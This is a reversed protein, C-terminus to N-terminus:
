NKGFYIVSRPQEIKSAMDCYKGEKDFYQEMYLVLFIMLPTFSIYMFLGNTVALITFIAFAIIGFRAKTSYVILMLWYLITGPIGYGILVNLFDNHAHIGEGGYVSQMVMRIGNIGIGLFRQINDEFYLYYGLLVAAFKERGNSITGSEAANMTKQMLPNNSLIDTFTMLFVIGVAMVFIIITKKTKNKISLFDMIVLVLLGLLASRVGTWVVSIFILAMMYVPFKKNSIKFQISSLAYLAVLMYALSHPIEFQGYLLPVTVGWGETRLGHKFLVGFLLLIYFGIVTIKYKYYNVCLNTMEERYEKELFLSCILMLGVYGFVDLARLHNWSTRNVDCALIIGLMIIVLLNKNMYKDKKAISYLASAFSLYILGRFFMNSFGSWVTYLLTYIIPYYFILNCILKRLSLNKFSIVM